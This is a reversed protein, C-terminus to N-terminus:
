CIKKEEEEINEYEDDENSTEWYHDLDKEEDILEFIDFDEDDDPEVYEEEDEFGIKKLYNSVNELREYINDDYDLSIREEFDANKGEKWGNLFVFVEFWNVHGSFNFFVTNVHKQNIMLAIRIIKEIQKILKFDIEM